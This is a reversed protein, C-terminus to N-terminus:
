HLLSWTHVSIGFVPVANEGQKEAVMVDKPFEVAGNFIDAKRRIYRNGNIGKPVYKENVPDVINGKFFATFQYYQYLM